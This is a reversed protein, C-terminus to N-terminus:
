SHFAGPARVSGGSKPAYPRLESAYRHIFDDNLETGSRELAYRAAASGSPEADVLNGAAETM